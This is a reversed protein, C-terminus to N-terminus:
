IDSDVDVTNDFEPNRTVFTRQAAIDLLRCKFPLIHAIIPGGSAEHDYATGTRSISGFASGDEYSKNFGQLAAFVNDLLILHELGRGREEPEEISGTEHLSESAIILNFTSEAQQKRKGLTEWEIPDWQLFIAPYNFFLNDEKNDNRYLQDNWIDFYENGINKDEFRQILAEYFNSLIM